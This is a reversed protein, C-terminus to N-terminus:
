PNMRKTKLIKNMIYAYAEERGLDSASVFLKLFRANDLNEKQNGLDYKILQVATDLCPKEIYIDLLASLEKPIMTGDFATGLKEAVFDYRCGRLLKAWKRKEFFNM